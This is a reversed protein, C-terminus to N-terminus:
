QGAKAAPTGQSSGAAWCVAAPLVHNLEETREPHPSIALVRGAGFEGAAIATTGPMVGAPVGKKRVETRFQAWERYDPIDKKEAPAFLPGQHYYITAKVPLRLMESAAPTVALEVNGFGRAWHQRDLVRADLLNLSWEYDASALYAGACIGVYGGGAAVFKRVQERGTEGLGRGQRGGSGGSFVVVHKGSLAGSIIQEVNVRELRIGQSRKLDEEVRGISESVGPGDFVAVHFTAPPHGSANEPLQAPLSAPSASWAIVLQLSPILLTHLRRM